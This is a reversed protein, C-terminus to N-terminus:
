NKRSQELKLLFEKREIGSSYGGLKGNEQIVRHCPVLIEIMNQANANAVARYAKANNIKQAEEKYSITKGYEISLLVKWCQVQFSTGLLQLPLTFCSRIGQFYEDLEQQLQLFFDNNSAIIQANFREKLNKLQADIHFKDYFSLMCIGKSTSAAFMEGLPTTVTTTHILAQTITKFSRM